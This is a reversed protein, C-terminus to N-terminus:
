PEPMFILDCGVAAARVASVPGATAAARSTPAGTRATTTSGSAGWTVAVVVHESTEAAFPVAVIVITLGGSLPSGRVYEHVTLPGTDDTPATDTASPADSATDRM